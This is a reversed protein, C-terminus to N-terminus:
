RVSVFISFMFRLFTKPTCIKHGYVDDKAANIFNLKFFAEPRYADTKSQRRHKASLQVDTFPVFYLEGARERTYAAMGWGSMGPFSGTGM